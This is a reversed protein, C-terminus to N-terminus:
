SKFQFSRTLLDIMTHVENSIESIDQNDTCGATHLWHAEFGCGGAVMLNTGKVGAVRKDWRSQRHLRRAEFECGHKLESRCWSNLVVPSERITASVLYYM